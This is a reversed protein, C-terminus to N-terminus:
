KIESLGPVRESVKNTNERELRKQTIADM